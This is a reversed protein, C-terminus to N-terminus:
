EIRAVTQGKAVIAEPAVMIHLAGSAPAYLEFTAKAVMIEAIMAGSQVQEGSAYLWTSIVAEEDDRWENAPILVDTM